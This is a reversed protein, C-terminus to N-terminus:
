NANIEETFVNEEIKTDDQTHIIVRSIKASQGLVSVPAPDFNTTSNMEKLM